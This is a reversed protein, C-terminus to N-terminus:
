HSNLEKLRMMWEESNKFTLRTGADYMNLLEAYHSQLKVSAELAEELKKVYEMCEEPTDNPFWVTM